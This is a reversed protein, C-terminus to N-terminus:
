SDSKEANIRVKLEIDDFIFNDGLGAFVSKSGFNVKWHTRDITFPTSRLTIETNTHNIAVPISINNTIEKITLNGELLAQGNKNTFGTVEFKAEPYKKTNFFDTEKGQTTGKLHAELKTKDKGTLNTVQLSKMDIIFSGSEIKGNNITLKGSKLKLIGSHTGTPNSGKWDIVSSTTDVVYKQSASTPMALEKAKEAQDKDHNSLCATLSMSFATFLFTIYFIKKM